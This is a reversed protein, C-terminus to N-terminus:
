EAGGNKALSTETSAGVQDVDVGDHDRLTPVVKEALCNQKRITDSNRLSQTTTQREYNDTPDVKGDTPSGARPRSENEQRQAALEPFLMDMVEGFTYQNAGPRYTRRRRRM